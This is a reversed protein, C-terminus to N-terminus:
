KNEGELGYSEKDEETLPRDTWRTIKNEGEILATVIEVRHAIRYNGLTGCKSCRGTSGWIEHNEIESVIKPILAVIRENELYIGEKRGQRRYYGKNFEAM